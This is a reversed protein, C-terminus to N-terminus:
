RSVHPLAALSLVFLGVFVALTVVQVAPKALVPAHVHEMYWHLAPSVGFACSGSDRKRGRRRGQQGNSWRGEAAEKLSHGFAKVRGALSEGHSQDSGNHSAAEVEPPSVEPLDDTAAATAAAAPASEAAPMHALALDIRRTMNEIGPADAAESHGAAENRQTYLQDPSLKICPFCDVNGGQVRQCDLALRAAFATMQVCCEKQHVTHHVCCWGM